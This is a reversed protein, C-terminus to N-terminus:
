LEREGVARRITKMLDSPLFPKVLLEVADSENLASLPPATPDGTMLVVPVSPRKQHIRKTLDLGNIGPMRIDSVVIHFTNQDLKQLAEYGNRAQEVQVGMLELYITLAQLNHTDDEVLLLRTVCPFAGCNVPRLEHISHSIYNGGSPNM